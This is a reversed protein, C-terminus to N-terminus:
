SALFKGFKGELGVRLLISQHVHRQPLGVGFLLRGLIVSIRNFAILLTLGGGKFVVLVKIYIVFAMLIILPMGVLVM